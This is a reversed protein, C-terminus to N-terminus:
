ALPKVNVRQVGAAIEPFYDCGINLATQSCATSITFCDLQRATDKDDGGIIGFLDLPVFRLNALLNRKIGTSRRVARNEFDFTPAFRSLLEPAQRRGAPPVIHRQQNAVRHKVSERQATGPRLQRRPHQFFIM